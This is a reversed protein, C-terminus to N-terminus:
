SNFSKRIDALLAPDASSEQRTVIATPRSNGGRRAKYVFRSESENSRVRCASISGHFTLVFIYRTFVFVSTSIHWKNLIFAASYSLRNSAPKGGRRGPNLGPDLWTPNTTPLTASPCTKESYKPKGQWDENWGNRWLWWRIDDPTPVIPWYHGCYWFDWGM